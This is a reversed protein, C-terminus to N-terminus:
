GRSGGQWHYREIDKIGKGNMREFLKPGIALGPKDLSKQIRGVRIFINGFIVDREIGNVAVKTYLVEDEEIGVKMGFKRDFAELSTLRLACDLLRKYDYPKIGFVGVVEDGIFRYIVGGAQEIEQAANTLILKLFSFAEEADIGTTLKTFGSVDARLCSVTIRSLNLDILIQGCYGCYNHAGIESKCAPCIM